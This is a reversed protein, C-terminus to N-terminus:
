AKGCPQQTQNHTVKSKIKNIKKSPLQFYDLFNIKVLITISNDNEISIRNDFCRTAFLPPNEKLTLQKPGNM